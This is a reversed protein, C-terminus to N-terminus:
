SVAVKASSCATATASHAHLRQQRICRQRSARSWLLPGRDAEAPFGAALAEPHPAARTSSCLRCRAAGCPLPLALPSYSGDRLLSTPRHDSALRPATCVLSLGHSNLFGCDVHRVHQEVPLRTKFAFLSVHIRATSLCTKKNRLMCTLGDREVSRMNKNLVVVRRTSCM